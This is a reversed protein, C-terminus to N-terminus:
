EKVSKFADFYRSGLIHASERCFHIGDGNATKQNNSLLGHTDVFAGGLESITERIARLVADCAVKNQEYWEDCFGGAIFPIKGGAKDAYRSIFDGFMASLNRKHTEYRKEPSFDPNEVSDHEGQHWLFAVIRNDGGDYGIAYDTLSLLRNYLVNGIGWEPRAFGTGGVAANVILIKRDPDLLGSEIYRKAFFLALKGIKGQEGVPEDAIEVKIGSPYNLHLVSGEYHPAAEDCVYLVKDTSVYEETVEGVGYGEANSQGGLVIVDYGKM